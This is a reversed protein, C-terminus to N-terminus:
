QLRYTVGFRGLGGGGLGTELLVGLEDKVVLTTINQRFNSLTRETRITFGNSDGEEATLPVGFILRVDTSAGPGLTLSIRRSDQQDGHSVQM